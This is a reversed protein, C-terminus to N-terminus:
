LIYTGNQEIVKQWRTVLSVSGLSNQLSRFIHYDSPALDASYPPYMLVEWSFEKLKQQIALSTHTRANDHHFVMGRRNSLEPRKREVEQKLRMLKDCYLESDITGGPPLLEYHIIAKWDWWVCLM